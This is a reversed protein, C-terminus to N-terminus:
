DAVTNDAARYRRRSEHHATAVFKPMGIRLKVIRLAPSRHEIHPRVIQGGQHLQESRNLRNGSYRAFRVFLPNDCALFFVAFRDGDVDRSMDSARQLKLVSGDSGQDRTKINKSAANKRRNFYM